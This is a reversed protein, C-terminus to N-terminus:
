TEEPTPQESSPTLVSIIIAKLRDYSPTLEPLRQALKMCLLQKTGQDLEPHNIFDSLMEMNQTGLELGNCLQSFTNMKENFQILNM